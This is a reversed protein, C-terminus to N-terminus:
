GWSNGGFLSGPRGITLGGNTGGNQGQMYQWIGIGNNIAGSIANGQGIAGAAQANGIGGLANSVGQAANTAATAQGGAANMGQGAIGGLRALYNDYEQSALGQNFSALDQLTRGSFLGGRAGALANVADQGQELRFNYSPTAKFGQYETGPRSNADAYAQAEARTKFTKGGVRFTAGSRGDAEGKAALAVLQTPSLAALVNPPLNALNSGANRSAPVKKVELTKEGFVPRPGLGMEYMLAANARKGGRYWPNLRDFVLDRTERQFQLDREAAAAQADAADSAANAQSVGGILSAGGMIGTVPDPM